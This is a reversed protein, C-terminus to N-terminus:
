RGVDTLGQGYLARLSGLAANSAAPKGVAYAQRLLDRGQQTLLAKSAIYPTIVSAVAAVPHALAIAATGILHGAASTGSPNAGTRDGARAMTDTVDGIDRIEKATFGMEELKPQVRGIERRFKAFSIGSAGPATNAAQELGNRLVYSKADQLVQPAHERLIATVQAAQSPQMTLYRRAILEPAKTSYTEGTFAADTVDKGLLKGLASQEIFEISKSAKAYNQNADRLAKAIPTSDTSAADFDKNIAGFLRRALLQNANPDIDSFVNGNRQAAKGWASRTKMASSVTGTMATPTPPTPMRAPQGSPLVIRSAANGPATETLADLMGQAQKAIKKADGAPVDKNEAIIKKLEGVTNSYRIVPKNGALERVRGYDTAAQTERQTAIKGVTDNYATRLRNGIAEPDAVSQTSLQDALENVRHAGATVQRAEDVNATGKSPFLERLRNELFRLSASGTEQGLTLPIGSSQSARAAESVPPPAIQSPRTSALGGAGGGLLTGVFRGPAGGLDQGAQGGLAGGVQPLVRGLVGEGAGPLAAAPLAQLAAAGYRQATTRPEASPGIVGTKKLTDQLAGEDVPMRSATTPLVSSPKGKNGTVFDLARNFARAPMDVLEQAKEAIPGVTQAVGKGLNGAVFGAMSQPSQAQAAPKSPAADQGLWEKPVNRGNAQLKTALQARTTGDPVNKVVTGDPLRVDM